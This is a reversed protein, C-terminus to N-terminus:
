SGSDVFAPATGDALRALLIGPEQLYIDTRGNLTVDRVQAPVHDSPSVNKGILEQLGEASKRPVQWNWIPRCSARNRSSPWGTSGSRNGSEIAHLLAGIVQTLTVEEIAQPISQKVLEATHDDLSLKEAFLADAEPNLSARLSSAVILVPLISTFAQAALTMARDFLELDRIDRLARLVFRGTMSRGTVRM